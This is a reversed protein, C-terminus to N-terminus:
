RLLEMVVVTEITALLNQVGHLFVTTTTSGTRRRVEGLFLGCLFINLVGFWDYQLHIIAWVGSTLLIAGGAGLRSSALGRFLFGRFALEEFVPAVLLVVLFLLLLSDATRYMEVQFQSVVPRGLLWTVADLLAVLLLMIAGYRLAESRRIPSLALYDRASWKRLWVVGVLLAIVVGASVITGVASFLGDKALRDAHAQLSVGPDTVAWCVLFPIAVAVQVLTYVVALAVAWGATV